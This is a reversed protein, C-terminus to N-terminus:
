SSGRLWLINWLLKRENECVCDKWNTCGNHTTGGLTTQYEVAWWWWSPIAKQSPDRKEWTNELKDSVFSSVAILVARWQERLKASYVSFSKINLYFRRWNVHICFWTAMCSNPIAYFAHLNVLSDIYCHFLFMSTMGLPRLIECSWRYFNYVGVLLSGVTNISVFTCTVGIHFACIYM